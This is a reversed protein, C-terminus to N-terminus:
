GGESQFGSGRRAPRINAAWLMRCVAAVRNAETKYLETYGGVLTISGPIDKRSMAPVSKGGNITIKHTSGFLWAHMCCWMLTYATDTM